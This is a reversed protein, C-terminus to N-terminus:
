AYTLLKSRVAVALSMGLISAGVLVHLTTILFPKQHWIINAGLFIQFSVLVILALSPIVLRKELPWKAAVYIVNIISFAGFLLSTM